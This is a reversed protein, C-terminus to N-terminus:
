RAERRALWDRFKQERRSWFEAPTGLVQELRIATEPTIAAKGKIIEGITKEPRGTREALEAQTMGIEELIEQLTEGPPSVTDPIYQNQILRSM